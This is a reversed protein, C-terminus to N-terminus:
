QAMMKQSEGKSGLRHDSRNKHGTKETGTSYLRGKFEKFSKCYEKGKVRAIIGKM